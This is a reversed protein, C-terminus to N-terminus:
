DRHDEDAIPVGGLTAFVTPLSECPTVQPLPTWRQAFPERRPGM